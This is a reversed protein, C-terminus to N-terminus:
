RESTVAGQRSQQSSLISGATNLHPVSHRKKWMFKPIKNLTAYNEYLTHMTLTLNVDVDTPGVTYKPAMNDKSNRVDIANITYNVNLDVPTKGLAKILTGTIYADNMWYPKVKLSAVDLNFAMNPTLIYMWGQCYTDYYDAPHEAISVAYHGTRLVPTNIMTQFCGVSSTLQSYKKEVADILNYIDVTVDDDMRMVVHAHPCHQWVWRLGMLDRLTVNHYSDNFNGQIIDGHRESEDEVLKQRTVNEFHGFTFALQVPLGSLQLNGLTQRFVNRIERHDPHSGILIMMYVNKKCLKRNILYKFHGFDGLQCKPPYLSQIIGLEFECHGCTWNNYNCLETIVDSVNVHIDNISVSATNLRFTPRWSVSYLIFFSTVFTLLIIGHKAKARHVMM